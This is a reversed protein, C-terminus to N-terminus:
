KYQGATTQMAQFMGYLYSYQQEMSAVLANAAAMQEQLSKQLDDIRTQQDSIQNTLSAIRGQNVKEATKLLGTDANQVGDLADMSNQLFGRGNAAGFFQLVGSPNASFAASFASSDFSLKGDKGLELGFSKMDPLSPDMPASTGIRSLVQSLSLVISDGSLAGGSSGYQGAVADAASNYASVFASLARSLADPARNVSITVPKNADTPALLSVTVGSSIAVSRSASDVGVSSNNVIYHAPHGNSQISAVSTNTEDTIDLARTDLMTSQLSIRYDNAAPNVNVVTARVKDGYQENIASAVGSPTNDSANIAYSDAGIHLTYAHSTQSTGTWKGTMMTSYAGIDTIELSYDGQMAGDDLAVSAKTYDSVSSSLSASGLADSIGQLASQLTAFRGDLSSLASSQNSLDTKQTNLQNLPLSAISVARTIVNQFDQSYRSSGTFIANSTSGM